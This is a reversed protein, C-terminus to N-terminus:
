IEPFSDSHISIGSDTSCGGIYALLKFPLTFYGFPEFVGGSGGKDGSFEGNIFFLVCEWGVFCELEKLHIYFEM